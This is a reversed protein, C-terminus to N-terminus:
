ARYGARRFAVISIIFAAIAFVTSLGWLAANWNYFWLSWRITDDSALKEIIPKDEIISRLKPEIDKVEMLKANLDAVRRPITIGLTVFRDKTQQELTNLSAAIEGSRTELTKKKEEEIGALDTM